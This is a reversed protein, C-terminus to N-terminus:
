QCQGRPAFILDIMQLVKDKMRFSTIFGETICLSCLLLFPKYDEKMPADEEVANVNSPDLLITLGQGNM